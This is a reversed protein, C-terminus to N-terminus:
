KNITVSEGYFKRGICTDDQYVTFHKKELHISYTNGRYTFDKLTAKGIDEHNFPKFSLAGEKMQIGFIGFIIAEM